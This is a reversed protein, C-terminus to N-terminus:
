LGIVVLYRVVENAANGFPNLGVAVSMSFSPGYMVFFANLGPQTQPRPEPPKRKTRIYPRAMREGLHGVSVVEIFDVQVIGGNIVVPNM